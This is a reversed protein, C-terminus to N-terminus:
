STIPHTALFLRLTNEILMAVTLPGVGGPVPTFAKCLQHCTPDVDGRLGFPTAHIGVDIVVCNPHIHEPKLLGQVGTAIIVVEAQRTFPTLDKTHRHCITVTAELHTLLNALPMGVLRSRGIVTVPRGDLPIQYHELLRCVGLATCPIPSTWRHPKSLGAAVRGQNFEHLGDVDKDPGIAHIIENTWQRSDADQHDLPFQTLIGTVSPDERQQSIIEILKSKSVDRALRHHTFHVLSDEAMKQKQRIYSTSSPDDGVQVIVLRPRKKYIAIAREVDPRLKALAADAVPKGKLVRDAPLM